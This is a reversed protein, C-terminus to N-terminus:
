PLHWAREALSIEKAAAATLQRARPALPIEANLSIKRDVAWDIRGDRLGLRLEGLRPTGASSRVWLAGGVRFPAWAAKHGDADLVVDVLGAEALAKAEAPAQWALLLVLDAEARLAGLAARTEAPTEAEAPSPAWAVGAVGVRLAGAQVVRTRAAGGVLPLGEGEGALRELAGRDAAGVNLAAPDLLALGRAMWRNRALADPRASGDLGLGRDLWGGVNVYLSPLAPDAERSAELWTVVRALGGLPEHECGCPELSGAEESGYFLVLDAGDGTVLRQEVSGHDVSVLTARTDGGADGERSLPAPAPRACAAILLLLM